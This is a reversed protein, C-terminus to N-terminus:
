KAKDAGAGPEAFTFSAIVADLSAPDPAGDGTTQRIIMLTQQEVPVATFTAPKGGLRGEWTVGQRGAFTAPRTNRVQGTFDALSQNVMTITLGAEAEPKCVSAQQEPCDPQDLKAERAASMLKVGRIEREADYPLPITVQSIVLKASEYELHIPGITAERFGAKTAASNNAEGGGSCGALAVLAAIALARM